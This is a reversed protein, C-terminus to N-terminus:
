SGPDLKNRMCAERLNKPPQIKGATDTYISMDGSIEAAVAAVAANILEDDDMLHRRLRTLIQEDIASELEAAQALKANIYETNGDDSRLKHEDMLKRWSDGAPFPFKEGPEFRSPRAGGWPNFFHVAGDVKRWQHGRFFNDNVWQYYAKWQAQQIGMSRCVDFFTQNNSTTYLEVDKFLVTDSPTTPPTEPDAPKSSDAREEPM